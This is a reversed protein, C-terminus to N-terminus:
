GYSKAGFGIELRSGRGPHSEIVLQGNIARVRQKIVWPGKHAHDLEALSLRGSFEFGRGDDEIVLKWLPDERRIDVRVRGAASHKRVNTLAEHVIQAVERSVRPSFSSTDIHPAFKIEIGTEFRFKDLMQALHSGLQRPGVDDLQLQQMLERLNIVEGHLLGRVIELKEAADSSVSAAQRRLVDVEMELTVLSQIVGDHLDRAIRAREVARVRSRSRQLLYLGHVVPAVEGILEQLFRLDARLRFSNQLDFLFVRGSWADGLAFTDALMTRFAGESFLVAPLRCLLKDTCRGERDLAVLQYHERRATREVCWSTTPMPYFYRPMDSPPIESFHFAGTWDRLNGGKWIFGKATALNKLALTARDAGFARSIGELAEEVTGNISTDPDARQLITRVALAERRLKKEGEALLGLIGGIVLVGIIELSFRSFRFQGHVPTFQHGWRSTALSAALLAVVVSVLATGFTERLGWRCAAAALPVVFLALFPSNPGATYLALLAPWLIDAGHILLFFRPGCNQYTQVLSLTVLSYVLYLVLLLYATPTYNKALTPEFRLAVLSSLAVAIRAACIIWERRRAEPLTFQVGFPRSRFVSSIGM